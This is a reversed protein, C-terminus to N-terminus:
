EIPVYIETILDEPKVSPSYNCYKELSPANRLVVDSTIIREKYIFNYLDWLREYPGKYRYMVFKGGPIFREKIRGKLEVDKNIGFCM